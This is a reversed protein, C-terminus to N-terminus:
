AASFTLSPSSTSGVFSVISDVDGGVCDIDFGGAFVAGVLEDALVDIEASCGFLKWQGSVGFDGRCVEFVSLCQVLSKM